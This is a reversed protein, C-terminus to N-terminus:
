VVINQKLNTGKFQNDLADLVINIKCATVMDLSHGKIFFLFFCVFLKNRIVAPPNLLTLVDPNKMKKQPPQHFPPNTQAISVIFPIFSTM